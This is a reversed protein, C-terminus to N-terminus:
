EAHMDSGWSLRSPGQLLATRDLAWGASVLAALFAEYGGATCTQVGATGKYGTSAPAAALWATADELALQAAAPWSTLLGSRKRAAMQAQWALMCAACYAELVDRPGAGQRLLVVADPGCGFGRGGGEEAAALYRKSGGGPHRRQQAGAEAAAAQQLLTALQRRLDLSQQASLSSAPLKQEPSNM